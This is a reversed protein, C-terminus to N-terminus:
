GTEVKPDNKEAVRSEPSSATKSVGEDITRVQLDRKPVPIEIGADRTAELVAVHLESSVVLYNEVQTWAFLRFDLSSEGFGMMWASPAPTDLVLPHAKAVQQLLELVMKPDTGLAVRFLVEVRRVQDSRTWNIVEKSVLDGNPVVVEAGDFTRITSARIGIDTVIGFHDVTQVRDGVKIPREFILVLGSIFNAVISQLGFGIGVGLAGFVVTLQTGSFGATAAALIIGFAVVTYNVLTVISHAVGTSLHLRPLVEERLAFRVFRAALVTVVVIFIASMIHRPSVDLGGQAIPASLGEALKRQVPAYIQFYQLVAKGCRLVVFGVAIFVAIRNFQREHRPISPLLRGIAGRPVLQILAILTKAVVLWAVVSYTSEIIAETLLQALTSWGLVGVLLSVALLVSALYLGAEALRWWGSGKTDSAARWRRILAIAGALALAIVFLLLLRRLLSADPALVWFRNLLFLTVAGYLMPKAAHAILGVGLRLVPIVALVASLDRVPGPADGIVWNMSILTFALAASVPRSVVFRATEFAPDDEPWSRSWRRLLLAISLFVAFLASLFLFQEQRNEVFDVITALWYRQAQRAERMLSAREWIGVVNWLPPEDRSLWRGRVETGMADVKVLAEATVERGRAVRDIVAAVGDSRERIQRQVDSVRELIGDIRQLLEPSFAEKTGVERTAEWQRRTQGLAERERQLTKWREQLASTWEGVTEQFKVWKLRHDELVRTSVRDADIGDLEAHLAVLMNKREDVTSRIAEIEYSPALLAEVRRLDALVEDARSPIDSGPIPVPESPVAILEQAPPETQQSARAPKVAILLFVILISFGFTRSSRNARIM